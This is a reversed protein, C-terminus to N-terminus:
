GRVGQRTMERAWAEVFLQHRDASTGYWPVKGRRRLEEITEELLYKVDVDPLPLSAKGLSAAARVVSALQSASRAALREVEGPSSKDRKRKGM